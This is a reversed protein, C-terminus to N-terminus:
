NIKMQLVNSIKQKIFEFADGKSESRIEIQQHTIEVTFEIKKGNDITPHGYIAEKGKRQCILRQDGDSKSDIGLITLLERITEM